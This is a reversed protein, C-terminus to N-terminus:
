TSAFDSRAIIGRDGISYDVFPRSNCAVKIFHHGDDYTPERGRNGREMASDGEM